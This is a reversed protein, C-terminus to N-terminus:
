SLECRLGEYLPGVHFPLTLAVRLKRYCCSYFELCGLNEVERAVRTAERSVACVSAKEFGPLPCTEVASHLCDRLSLLHCQSQPTAHYVQTTCWSSPKRQLGMPQLDCLRLRLVRGRGGKASLPGPTVQSRGPGLGSM